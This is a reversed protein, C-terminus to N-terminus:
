WGWDDDVKRKQPGWDDDDCTTATKQSIALRNRSPQYRVEYGNASFWPHQALEMSFAHKASKDGGLVDNVEQMLSRLKFIMSEGRRTDHTEITDSFTSTLLALKGQMSGDTPFQSFPSAAKGGGQNQQWSDQGNQWRPAQQQQVQAEPHQQTTDDKWTEPLWGPLTHPEDGVMRPPPIVMPQHEPVNDEEEPAWEERPPREGTPCKKCTKNRGFNHFSCMKCDWDPPPGKRWNKMLEERKRQKKEQQRKGMDQIPRDKSRIWKMQRARIGGKEDEVIDYEVIDDREFEVEQMDPNETIHWFVKGAFDDSTAFGWKQKLILQHQSSVAGEVRTNVLEKPDPKGYGPELTMDGRERAADQDMQEQTMLKVGECRGNVEIVEFTVPDKKQFNVGRM